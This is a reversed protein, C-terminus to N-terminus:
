LCIKSEVELWQVIGRVLNVWLFVDDIVIFRTLLDKWKYKISAKITNM